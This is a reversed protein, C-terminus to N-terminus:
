KQGSVAAHCYQDRACFANPAFDLDEPAYQAACDWTVKAINIIWTHMEIDTEPVDKANLLAVSLPILTPVLGLASGWSHPISQYTKWKKAVRKKGETRVHLPHNRAFIHLMDLVDPISTYSSYSKLRKRFMELSIRCPVPVHLKDNVKNRLEFIWTVMDNHAVRPPMTKLYTTYSDRCNKCPLFDELSHFFTEVHHANESLCWQADQRKKVETRYAVDFMIRWLKPGWVQPDM